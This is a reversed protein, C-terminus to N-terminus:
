IIIALYTRDLSIGFNSRLIYNNETFYSHLFLDGFTCLPHHCFSSGNDAGWIVTVRLKNVVLSTVPLHQFHSLFLIDLMEVFHFFFTHKFDCIGCAKIVACDSFIRILRVPAVVGQRIDLWRAIRNQLSINRRNIPPQLCVALNWPLLAMGHLPDIVSQSIFAIEGAAVGAYLFIDALLLEHHLRGGFSIQRKSVGVAAPLHVKALKDIVVGLLFLLIGISQGDRKGIGVFAVRLREGRLVLLAQQCPHLTDKLVNAANRGPQAKVIHRGGHCLNQLTCLTNQSITEHAKLQM